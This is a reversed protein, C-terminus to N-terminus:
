FRSSITLVMPEQSIPRASIKVNEDAALGSGKITWSLRNNSMWSIYGENYGPKYEFGYISFCGGEMSYCEPDTKTVYSTAQQYVGGKYGNEVTVSSDRVIRTNGNEPWEYKYNFPAWQASQSVEGHLTGGVKDFNTGVQAEFMDIEPAARGVFSGDPHKPGPHSEGDCTCRSLRQGSLYSLVGGFEADGDITALHPEGNLTQNKLTGVDCADYSYPWLGDLSAGYGARGLNGMSWIAPWLGAVNSFGPLVVSAVVLGGTFCFKNWTQIMGGQFNMGHTTKRSLTIKLAGNETTVAEPDYWELNNTQWYHLNVAEWYPDDGPYFTRGNVNFEDSFVLQLEKGADFSKYTHADQPTDVDILGWGGTLLPVQGTANVGIMPVSLKQTYSVIPYGVFLGLIMSILVLLCGVNRLGRSSFLSTEPRERASDHFDDDPERQDRSVASGWTNPDPPLSFKGEISGLSSHKYRENVSEFLDLNDHPHATQFEGDSELRTYRQHRM